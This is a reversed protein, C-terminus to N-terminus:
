KGAKKQKKAVKVVSDGWCNRLEVDAGAQLLVHMVEFFGSGAAVHAATQGRGSHVGNVDAGFQLLIQVAQVKNNEAAIQLPPTGRFNPVNADHGCSLLDQLQMVDGTCAATHLPNETIEEREFM